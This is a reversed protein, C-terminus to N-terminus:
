QMGTRPVSVRKVLWLFEARCVDDAADAGLGLFGHGFLNGERGAVVDGPAALELVHFAGDFIPKM